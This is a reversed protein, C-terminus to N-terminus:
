QLTIRFEWPGQKDGIQPIRFLLEKANKPAPDLNNWTYEIGNSRPGISSGVPNATRVVGNDFSYEVSNIMLTVPPPVPGAPLSYDPPVVFVVVNMGISTFEVRELTVAIGNVTISKNVDLTKQMAGEAPLILISISGSSGSTNPDAASISASIEYRGYTVQNGLNDRQDWTFTYDASKGPDLVLQQSGAPFSRVVTEPPLGSKVIEIIAPFGPITQATSSVNTITLKAEVKQGFNYTNNGSWKISLSSITKQPITLAPGPAPVPTPEAAHGVGSQSPAQGSDRTSPQNSESSPPAGQETPAQAGSTSTVASFNAPQSKGPLIGTGLVVGIGILFVVAAATAVRWAPKSLLNGLSELFSRRPEPVIQQRLRNWSDASPEVRDAKATLVIVLKKQIEAFAALDQKCRDCTDVHAQIQVREQDTVQGDIYAALLKNIDECKM